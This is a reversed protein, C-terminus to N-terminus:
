DQKKAIVFRRSTISSKYTLQGTGSANYTADLTVSYTGPTNIVITDTPTESEYDYIVTNKNKQTYDVDSTPSITWKYTAKYLLHGKSSQVATAVLKDGVHFTSSAGEELSQITIESLTPPYSRYKDDDNSCSALCLLLAPLIAKTLIKNM